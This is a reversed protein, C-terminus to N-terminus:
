WIPSGLYVAASNPGPLPLPKGQEAIRVHIRVREEEALAKEEPSEQFASFAAYSYAAQTCPLQAILWWSRRPVFPGTHLPDLAAPARSVARFDCSIVGRQQTNTSRHMYRAEAFVSLTERLYCSSQPVKAQREDANDGRRFASKAVREERGNCCGLNLQLTEGEQGCPNEISSQEAGM